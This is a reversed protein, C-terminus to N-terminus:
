TSCATRSAAAPTSPRAARPGATSRTPSRSTPASPTTSTCSTASRRATRASSPGAAPSCRRRRGGPVLRSRNQDGGGYVNGFRTTAVPLGYATWYSRAIIDAAAKSAEYPRPPRLAAGESLPLTEPPGYAHESSAVIAWRSRTARPLGRAADLHRARQVRLDGAARPGRRRGDVSAALHLVADAGAAELARALRRATPSTATSSRRLRRELGELELVCGARPARRLVERQAGRELLAQALWGGVFGYAGTVLM